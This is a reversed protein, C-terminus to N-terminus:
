FSRTERLRELVSIEFFYLKIIFNFDADLEFKILIIRDAEGIFKVERACNRRSENM